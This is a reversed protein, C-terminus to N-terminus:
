AEHARNDLAGLFRFIARAVAHGLIPPVANGILALNRQTAYPFVFEDPFSQLRACERVTLRRPLEYHFQIRGRANARICYSVEGRRNTHDGQGGGSTARTAVYFQSQNPIAEDNVGELDGLAEEIPIHHGAHSPAPSRPAGKLDERVGVLFLRRRSQSLGYDPGYLEWVVFRYGVDSLDELITRLYEGAKLRRLHPVNEAVVVKPHHAVMYERLALYLQGRKGALGVKPGSSSFDQCPFGGLLVDAKPVEALDIDRLDAQEVHSAVNLRYTEVADESLDIATSINFPLSEYSTGRYRFGGM